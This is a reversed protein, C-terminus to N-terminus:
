KNEGYDLILDATKEGIGKIGLLAERDLSAVTELNIGAAVLVDRAPFNEPLDSVAVAVKEEVAETIPRASMAGNEAVLIELNKPADSDVPAPLYKERREKEQELQRKESEKQVDAIERGDPLTTRVGLQIEREMQQFDEPSMPPLNPYQKLPEEVNEVVNTESM